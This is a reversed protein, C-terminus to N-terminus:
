GGWKDLYKQYNKKWADTRFGSGDGYHLISIPCTGQRLGAMELQRSFDIDYFHFDFQEDFRINKELLTESHASIFVGDVLKVEDNVSNHDLISDYPIQDGHAVSGSLLNINMPFFTNESFREFAWGPQKPVRIKSGIVGVADFQQLSNILTTKWHLDLFYVDDHVFVLIAPNNKAQEIASNYIYSLGQSNKEFLLLELNKPNFLRLSKGLLSNTFFEGSSMRTGCIIRITEM